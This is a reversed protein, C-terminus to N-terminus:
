RGRSKSRKAVRSPGRSALVPVTAVRRRVPAKTAASFVWFRYWFWNWGTFFGASIFQGIYPTIGVSKLGRIIYYDLVFNVGTIAVYRWTVQTINKRAAKGRFVWWRELAFNVSVGVINASLKAWWLSWHLGKDCFAFVAYGSWFYAGGTICYEVFRVLETKQNKKLRLSM